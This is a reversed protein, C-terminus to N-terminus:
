QQWEPSALAQKLAPEDSTTIAEPMAAASYQVRQQPRIDYSSADNTNETDPEEADTIITQPNVDSINETDNQNSPNQEDDM